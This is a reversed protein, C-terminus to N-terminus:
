IHILSLGRSVVSFRTQKVLTEVKPAGTGVRQGWDPGFKARLLPGMTYEGTGFKMIIPM